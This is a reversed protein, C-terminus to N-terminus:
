NIKWRSGPQITVRIGADVSIPGVSGANNGSAVLTDQTISRANTRIAPNLNPNLSVAEALVQQAQLASASADAAKNSATAASGASQTASVAAESAKTSATTASSAAASASSASETAKTLAASASGASASASSAAESAKTAATTASLAAASQLAQASSDYDQWATGNYIRFKDSVYNEYMIGDTVTIGNASAFAVAAADNAFSGLMVSRFTALLAAVAVQTSAASSASGAAASASGSAASASSAASSASSAAEGAKTTATQANALANAVASINNAVAAIQAANTIVTDIQDSRVTLAALLAETSVKLAAVEQELTM